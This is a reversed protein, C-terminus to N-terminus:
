EVENGDHDLDNVADAAKEKDANEILAHGKERAIEEIPEDFSRKMEDQFSTSMQRVASTIKGMARAVEPLKKPGIFIVVVLFIVLLQGGGINFM